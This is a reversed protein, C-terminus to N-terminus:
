QNLPSLIYTAWFDTPFNLNKFNSESGTSIGRPIMTVSEVERTGVNKNVKQTAAMLGNLMVNYIFKPSKDLSVGLYKLPILLEYTIAMKNDFLIKAKLGQRNYVSMLTDTIEKIGKVKIEKSSSSIERNLEALGPEIQDSKKKEALKTLENYHLAIRSQAIGSILPFTITVNNKNTRKGTNNIIVSIGGALIKKVTEIDRAQVTLYLNSTSNAMTYFINTHHNFAQFVNNWEKAKGDVIMSGPLSLSKTQLDPLKQASANFTIISLFSIYHSLKISKKYSM